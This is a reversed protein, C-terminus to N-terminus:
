KKIIKKIVFEHADNEIKLIYMGSTFSSMDITTETGNYVVSGQANCLTCKIAQQDAIEIYLLQEVPNPYVRVMNSNLANFIANPSETGCTDLESVDRVNAFFGDTSGVHSLPILGYTPVSKFNGGVLIANNPAINVSNCRDNSDPGGGSIAWLWEGDVSIRALFSNIGGVSDTEIESGFNAKEGIDGCVYVKCHKNAVVDNGRESGAKSGARKGWICDGNASNFKAVFVDRKDYNKIAVDDFNFSDRHEGTIYVHGMSDVAIGNCWDDKDSGGSIAWRFNGSTDYSCLFVDHGGKSTLSTTGFTRTGDFGGAIYLRGSDDMAICNDREVYKFTSPDWPLNGFSKGWQWVGNSDIKAVWYNYVHSGTNTPAIFTATGSGGLIMGVDDAMFGAVYSNGAADTVIDLGQDDGMGGAWNAWKWNGNKDLKAVFTQDCCSSFSPDSVYFPGINISSWNTGTIYINDNNDLDMGLVRDDFWGGCSRAWQCVGNSDYKAVFAEKSSGGTTTRTLIVGNGLDTNYSFYGSVIVNNHLDARITIVKDSKSSGISKAWNWSQAFSSQISLICIFLIFLHKQTKM